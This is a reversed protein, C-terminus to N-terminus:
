QLAFASGASRTSLRPSTYSVASTLSLPTDIPTLGYSRFIRELKGILEKKDIMVSPLTDRFGKLVRPEIM